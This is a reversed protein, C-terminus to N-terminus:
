GFLSCGLEGVVLFPLVTKTDPAMHARAGAGKPHFWMESSHGMEQYVKTSGIQPDEQIHQKTSQNTPQTQPRTLQPGITM